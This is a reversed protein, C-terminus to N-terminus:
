NPALGVGDGFRSHRLRGASLFLNDWFYWSPCQVSAHSTGSGKVNVPLDKDGRRGTFPIKSLGPGVICKTSERRRPFSM